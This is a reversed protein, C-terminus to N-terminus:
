RRCFAILARVCHLEERLNAKLTSGLAARDVLEDSFSTLDVRACRTSTAFTPPSMAVVKPSTVSNRQVAPSSTGPQCSVWSSRILRASFAKEPFGKQGRVLHINASHYSVSASCRSRDDILGIYGKNNVCIFNDTEAAMSEGQANPVCWNRCKAHSGHM